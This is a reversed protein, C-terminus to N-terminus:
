GGPMEHEFTDSFSSREPSEFPGYVDRVDRWYQNLGFDNRLDIKPDRAHGKLINTMTGM